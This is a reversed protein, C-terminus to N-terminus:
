RARRHSSFTWYFNAFYTVSVTSATAFLQTIMYHLQQDFFIFFLSNMGVGLLAVVTFRFASKYFKGRYTFTWIRNAFYNFIASLIYGATSGVLPSFGLRVLLYLLILLILTAIAGTLLYRYFTISQHLILIM